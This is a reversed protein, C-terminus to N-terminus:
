PLDRWAPDVWVGKTQNWRRFQVKGYYYRYKVVIVDKSRTGIEPSTAYTSAASADAAYSCLPVAQLAFLVMLFLAAKKKM